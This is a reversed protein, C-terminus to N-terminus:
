APERRAKTARPFYRARSIVTLCPSERPPKFATALRHRSIPRIEPHYARARARVSFLGGSVRLNRDYRRRTAPALGLLLLRRENARRTNQARARFNNNSRHSFLNQSEYKRTARRSSDNARRTNGNAAVSQNEFQSNM